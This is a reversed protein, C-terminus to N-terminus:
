RLRVQEDTVFAIVYLQIARIGAEYDLGLNNVVRVIVPSRRTVTVPEVSFTDAFRIDSSRLTLSFRANEGIDDDSAIM